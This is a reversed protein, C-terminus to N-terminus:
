IIATIVLAIYIIIAITLVLAFIDFLIKTPIGVMFDVIFSISMMDLIVAFVAFLALIFHTEPTQSVFSGVLSQWADFFVQM